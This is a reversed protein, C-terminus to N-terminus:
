FKPLAYVNQGRALRLDTAAATLDVTGGLEVDTRRREGDRGRSKPVLSMEHHTASSIFNASSFPNSLDVTGNRTSKILLFPTNRFFGRSSLPRTARNSSRHTTRASVEVHEV